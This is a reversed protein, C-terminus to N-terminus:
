RRCAEFSRARPKLSESTFNRKVAFCGLPLNAQPAPETHRKGVAVLDSRPGRLHPAPGATSHHILCFFPHQAWEAMLDPRICPVAGCSDIHHHHVRSDHSGPSFPSLTLTSVSAFYRIPKKMTPRVERPQSSCAEASPFVLMSRPTPTNCKPPGSFILRTLENFPLPKSDFDGASHQM